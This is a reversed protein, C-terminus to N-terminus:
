ARVDFAYQSLITTKKDSQLIRDIPNKEEAAEERVTMESHMAYGKKSLRENLIYMRSNLFDLMKDDCVTFRTNVKQNQMVVYVDVPGLNEMDLHLFASVNGDKEALSRKNTYVYLEGNTNRGNMKLPLQVYTYMQNVQNMFDINQSLSAVSKAAASQGAGSNELVERMGNLQKVLRTYLKEVERGEMVQEPKVSWQKLVAAELLKHYQDSRFIDALAVYLRIDTDSHLGSLTQLIEKGDAEGRLLKETLSNLEPYDEIPIASLLRALEQRESLPLLELVSIEKAQLVAQGGEALGAASNEPAGESLVASHEAAGEPLVGDNGGTMQGAVGNEMTPGAGGPNGNFDDTVDAQMTDGRNGEAGTQMDPLLNKLLQTYMQVAKQLGKEAYLENFAVPLEKLVDTMGKVLQHTLAKYNEMQGLNAKNVQMGMQHLQVINLPPTGPNAMVDKFVEQLSKVDVSMGQAMMAETMSATTNNVPLNAMQLAKLINDANATNAFLPSLTLTSGNNKVEFTLMRGEEVNVDREMKATLVLDDALKIKVESGNKGIIEGQLMKGPTLSKIQRSMREASASDSKETKEAKYTSDARQSSTKFIESLWM